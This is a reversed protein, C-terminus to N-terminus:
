IGTDSVQVDRSRRTCGQDQMKRWRFALMPAEVMANDVWPRPAWEACDPTVVPKRGGRKRFTLPIHVGDASVTAQTAGRARAAPWRGCLGVLKNLRLRVEVGSMLVDVREVLLQHDATLELTFHLVTPPYPIRRDGFM